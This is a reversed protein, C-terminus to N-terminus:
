NNNDSLSVSYGLSSLYSIMEEPTSPTSKRPKFNRELLKDMRDNDFVEGTSLM